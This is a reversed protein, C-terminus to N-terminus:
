KKRLAKREEATTGAWFGCDEYKLSWERCEAWVECQACAERAAAAVHAGPEPFFLDVDLKRKVCAGEEMFDMSGPPFLPYHFEEAPM